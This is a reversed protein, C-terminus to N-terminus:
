SQANPSDFDDVVLVQMGPVTVVPQDILVVTKASGGSYVVASPNTISNTTMATPVTGTPLATLTYTGSPINLYGTNTAFTVNTLVPRVQLITSGTPILYLDVAGARTSQDIFRLAITGSPAPTSQDTLVTAQLAVSADGVLITYQNNASFTGRTSALQQQTKTVDVNITYIAPSTPIYSTVTGLGLNYALVGGGQYIDVGPADPSADIIRVQAVSANGPVNACGPITALLLSLGTLSLTRRSRLIRFSTWSLSGPIPKLPTMPELRLNPESTM